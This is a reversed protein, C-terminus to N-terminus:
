REQERHEVVASAAGSAGVASVPARSQLVPPLQNTPIAFTAASARTRLGAAQSWRVQWARVPQGTTTSYEAFYVGDPIRRGNTTFRAASNPDFFEMQRYQGAAGQATRIDGVLIRRIHLGWDAQEPTFNMPDMTSLQGPTNITDAFDINHGRVYAQGTAPDVYDATTMPYDQRTAGPAGTFVSGTPRTFARAGVIRGGQWVVYNYRGNANPGYLRVTVPESMPGGTSIPEWRNNLRTWQYGEMLPPLDTVPLLEFGAPPNFNQQLPSFPGALMWRPTVPTGTFPIGPRGGARDLGNIPLWSLGVGMGMGLLGGLGVSAGYQGLTMRGAVVDDLNEIAAGASGSPLGIIGGTIANVLLRQGTSLAAGSAGFLRMGVASSIGPAALAGVAGLGGQLAGSKTGEWTREGVYGWDFTQPGPTVAMSVGVGVSASTFELGGSVVAGTGAGGVVALSGAAVTGATTLTGTATVMGGAGAATLLGPAAAFIAPAAVAGALGAAIGFSVNRVIELRHVTTEAGQITANIYTRWRAEAHDLRSAASQLAELQQQLLSGSAVTAQYDRLADIIGQANTRPGDWITLAPCNTNGMWDSIGRIVSDTGRIHDEHVWRGGEASDKLRLARRYVWTVAGQMMGVYQAETLEYSRGGGSFRYVTIRTEDETPIGRSRIISGQEIGRNIDQHARESLTGEALRLTRGANLHDPLGGNAASLAATMTPSGYIYAAVEALTHGPITVSAYITRQTGSMDMGWLVPATPTAQPEPPAVAAPASPPTAGPLPQRKIMGRSRTDGHQGQVVHSLEHALLHRGARSGPDFSGRNFFLNNGHAFAQAMVAQAALNASNDTHIRVGSLDARFFGEYDRRVNASLAAGHGAPLAASVNPTGRSAAANRDGAPNFSPSPVAASVFADAHRDAEVEDPDSSQSTALKGQIEGSRLLHQLAFNGAAQQLDAM